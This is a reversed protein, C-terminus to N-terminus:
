QRQCIHQLSHPTPSPSSFSWAINRVTLLQLAGSSRTHGSPFARPLPSFSSRVLALCPGLTECVYMYM